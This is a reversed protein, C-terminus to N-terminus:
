IEILYPKKFIFFVAMLGAKLTTSGDIFNMINLKKPVFDLLGKNKLCNKFILHPEINQVRSPGVISTL